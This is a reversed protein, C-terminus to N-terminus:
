DSGMRLTGGEQRPKCEEFTAMQARVADQIQGGFAVGMKMALDHPNGPEFLLGTRGDEVLSELAGLRSAIVPLANAYAEALTMPFMEHCISPLVLVAASRM